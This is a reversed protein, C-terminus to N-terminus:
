CPSAPSCSCGKPSAASCPSRAPSTRTRTSASSRAHLRAQGADGPIRPVREINARRAHRHHRAPHAYAAIHVTEMNSFAALMMKVETPKFVRSYRKMYNDQVEIDAQTFFRFIQTLLNREHGHADRGTRSTRAWRCKRPCGTSRSSASGSSMPGPIATSMYAAPPTSCARDQGQRDAHASRRKPSSRAIVSM